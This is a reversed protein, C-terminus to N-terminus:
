KKITFSIDATFFRAPTYSIPSETPDVYSVNYVSKFKFTSFPYIISPAVTNKLFNKIVTCQTEYQDLAIGDMSGTFFPNSTLNNNTLQLGFFMTKNRSEPIDTNLFVVSLKGTYEVGKYPPGDISHDWPNISDSAALAMAPLCAGIVIVLLLGTLFFGKKTKM